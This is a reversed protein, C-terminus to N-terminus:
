PWLASYMRTVPRFLGPRLGLTLAVVFSAVAVLLTWMLVAFGAGQAAICVVLAAGLLVWGVVRIAARVRDAPATGAVLKWKGAQSLALSVCGALVLCAAFVTM